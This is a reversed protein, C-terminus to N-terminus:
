EDYGKIVAPGRHEPPIMDRIQAALEGSGERSLIELMCELIDPDFSLGLGLKYNKMLLERYPALEATLEDFRGERRLTLLEDKIPAYREYLDFRDGTRFLLDWYHKITDMKPQGETQKRIYREREKIYLELPMGYDKLAALYEKYPIATDSVIYGTMKRGPLKRTMYGKGYLSTFYEKQPVPFQHGELTTMVPESFWSKRFHYRRTRFHKTFCIEADPVDYIRCFDEFMKKAFGEGGDASLKKRVLKGAIAAKRGTSRNGEAFNMEFGIERATEVKSRLKSSPVDRLVNVTVGFGYRGYHHCNPLDLFLTDEATYRCGFEGYKPDTLWSDLSRDAPKEESFAKIFKKLEPVSMAVEANCREEGMRSGQVAELATNEHLFYTIEHRRCIGDIETLLRFLIKQIDTM